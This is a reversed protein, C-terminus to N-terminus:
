ILKLSYGTKVAQTTNKASLKIRINKLHSKVTEEDRCMDCAIQKRTYGEACLKLIRQEINTLWITDIKNKKDLLECIEECLFQEGNYVTKIGAFVEEADSNKLIYGLAGNHLAHKAINFEKYSTLIIIKLEPYIKKMKACFKVGDGDPMEIDLLLIDPQNNALGESCAKLTYYVATVQAFTSENIIKSLSQAVMKHDDTINVNIM